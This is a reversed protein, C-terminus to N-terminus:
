FTGSLSLGTPSVGLKARGASAPAAAASPSTLILVVGGIIAAAGVGIAVNSVTAASHAEQSATVAAPDLCPAGPCLKDSTSSKSIAKLGFGMGIGVGVVGAAGVVYGVLRQTSMGRSAEEPAQGRDGMAGSARTDEELRGVKVTQEDRELGITVSAEFPKKGAATVVVHHVGPDVPLAQGFAAHTVVSEDIRVEVHQAEAERDVTVRLHSLKPELEGINELAVQERDARGDRRALSVVEKFEGWATATKGAGRHCLALATLTGAGPDIRQSEMLKPCADAYKGEGMLKKGEQFLSEAISRDGQTAEAGATTSFSAVSTAVAVAVISPFFLRRRPKAPTKMTKPVAFESETM